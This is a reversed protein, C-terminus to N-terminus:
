AREAKLQTILPLLTEQVLEGTLPGIHKYRIAGAKDIVYTEPAGYVGWDIAVQGEYDVGIAQYPDGHQALWRLADQREDKYNLGYVPVLGSQALAMLVAHEDRCSGCWSAWVNVLSVQGKLDEDRFVTEPVTLQSLEFAPVPKGILPSPVLRPDRYLGAAMFAILVVFVGLPILYRLRM